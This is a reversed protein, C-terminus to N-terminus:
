GIIDDEDIFEEQVSPAIDRLAIHYEILAGLMVSAFLEGIQECEVGMSEIGDITLVGISGIPICILSHYKSRSEDNKIWEKDASVDPINQTRKTRFARGAISNDRELMRSNSYNAPFGSSVVMPRLYQEDIVWLCCRHIEGSKYRIDTTLSNILDQILYASQALKQRSDNSLRLENLSDIFPKINYVVRSMYNAIIKNEDNEIKLTSINTWLKEITENHKLIASISKAFKGVGYFTFFFFVLLGVILVAGAVHIHWPYLKDIFEIIVTPWDM